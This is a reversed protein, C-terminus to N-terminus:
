GRNLILEAVGIQRQHLATRFAEVVNTAGHDLLLEVIALHGDRSALYLARNKTAPQLEDRELLFKLPSLDGKLVYPEALHDMYVRDNM